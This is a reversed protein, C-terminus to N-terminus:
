GHMKKDHEWQFPVDKPLLARLPASKESMNPIFKSCYTVMGIFESVGEKSTPRPMEQIAKVRDPDPQLGKESLVHGCYKVSSLGFRCKDPNLKINYQRCRELVLRLRRDHEARTEAAVLIDDMIVEVGPIDAFIESFIRHSIEPSTCIGMPLRKYQFRGIPTQFTTLNRCAVALM